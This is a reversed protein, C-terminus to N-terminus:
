PRDVRELLVRDPPAFRVTRFGQRRVAAAEWRM